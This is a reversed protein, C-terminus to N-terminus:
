RASWPQELGPWGQSTLTHAHTHRHTQTQTDINQISGQPKRQVTDKRRARAVKADPAAAVLNARNALSGGQQEPGDLILGRKPECKCGRDSAGGISKGGHLSSIIM